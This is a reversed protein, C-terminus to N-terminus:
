RTGIHLSFHYEVVVDDLGAYIDVCAAIHCIGAL